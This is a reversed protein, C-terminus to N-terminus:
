PPIARLVSLRELFVYHLTQLEEQGLERSINDPAPRHPLAHENLVSIPKLTDSIDHDSPRLIGSSCFSAPQM